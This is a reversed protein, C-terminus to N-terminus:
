EEVTRREEETLGYLNYVMDDIEKDTTNIVLQIENSKIKETEFYQMWEAQEPLSLKVKQKDLQKLFEKSSLIPWKLLKHFQLYQGIRQCDV